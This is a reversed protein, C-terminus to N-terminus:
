WGMRLEGSLSAVTPSIEPGPALGLGPGPALGLGQGPAVGGMMMELRDQRRELARSHHGLAESARGSLLMLDGLGHSVRALGASAQSIM